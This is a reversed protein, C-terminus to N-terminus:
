NSDLVRMWQSRSIKKQLVGAPGTVQYHEGHDRFCAVRAAMGGPLVLSLFADYGIAVVGDAGCVLAIHLRNEQAREGLLRQELPTFTFAWPSRGKTSHKILTLVSRNIFFFPAQYRLSDIKGSRVLQHLAAGEYFEQKKIAM